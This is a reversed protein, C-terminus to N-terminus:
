SAELAMKGPNMLNKPDLYKKAARFIQLAEGHEEHMFPAKVLGVGHHHTITGGVKLTAEMAAEWVKAHLKGGEIEDKGATIFTFYISCGDVYAHSFHAMIFALPEVAKKVEDYLRALKDWTTAVEITDVFAGHYFIKSQKYSVHYRKKWWRMAPEPGRNEGGLMECIKTTTELEYNAMRDVGEFMLVLLCGDKVLKGLVNILDARKAFTRETARVLNPILAKIRNGFGAIAGLPSEDADEEKGSGVLFTDLEDYLRIAAPKIGNRMILRIAETGSNVDKFVFSSFKRTEPYPWMSLWSKTIIGLTGESGMFLHKFDPGTASRPVIRSTYIEGSPFVVEMGIAMDEMKGYKASLQGASRAALYGGVTSCYISSPFHGATFGHRNLEMELLQGIIGTECGVVLSKDDISFIRNMRKTDIIMGGNVPLTGGCVGSGAGFPIMPIELEYCLACVRSTQETNGPWIVASPSYQIFGENVELMSKPNLDRCYSLRDVEQISVWKQGVIEQFRQVLSESLPQVPLLPM